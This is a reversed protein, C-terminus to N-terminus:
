KRATQRAPDLFRYLIEAADIRTLPAGNRDGAAEDEISTSSEDPAAHGAASTTQADARHELVALSSIFDAITEIEEPCYLDADKACPRVAHAAALAEVSPSQKSYLPVDRFTAESALQYGWRRDLATAAPLLEFAAVLTDAAQARTLVQLPAFGEPVASVWGHVLAYEAAPWESGSRPLDSLEQKALGSNFELLARQVVGPDVQRPQVNEAVAIAALAGAAQGTLMTTPQLRTASNAMRSQSINKEAALLGDVKEPILTEMPIQFPGNRFERPMDTAHELDHEYDEETNCDHLYETYDGVAIADKFVPAPDIDSRNIADPWPQERRIDGGVLTYAGILRRSERVYPLLPFDVELAKFERPINPCSNEERNYPTDYGEDNAVSWSTEGLDHQIYYLLDLTRLKAACIIEKRKSRDFLDTDALSDNFFNLLTRTIKGPTSATYNEPNSSDPLARCENHMTFNVPIDKTTANGDSRLFRRMSTVFASDYGPPAHQMLLEPPVGKPYKKIVAEYTMDQTCSKGPEASTFRGIRYAAATLPLVDGLETADIVVKSHFIHNKETVVGTVTQETGLVKDVRERLFLSVHGKGERNVEDIMEFLVKQIASPEYCHNSDKWYCTGVSKGRAQYYARMHELFEAYLGSELTTAGGENMTSDAATAMQGGIWDTEELLAVQAGLRAAQLAASVGGTGAGVIVVDASQEARAETPEGTM